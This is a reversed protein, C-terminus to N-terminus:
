VSSAFCHAGQGSWARFHVIRCCLTAMIDCGFEVASRASGQQNMDQPRLSDLALAQAHRVLVPVSKYVDFPKPYDIALRILRKTLPCVVSTEWGPRAGVPCSTQLHPWDHHTM